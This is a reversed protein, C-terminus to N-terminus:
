RVVPEIHTAIWYLFFAAAANGSAARVRRVVGGDALLGAGFGAGAAALFGNVIVVPDPVHGFALRLSLTIGAALCPSGFLALRCVTAHLGGSRYASVNM